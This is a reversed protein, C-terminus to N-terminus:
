QNQEGSVLVGLSDGLVSCAGGGQTQDAKRGSQNKGCVARIQGVFWELVTWPQQDVILEPKSFHCFAEVGM